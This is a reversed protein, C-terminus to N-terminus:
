PNNPRAPSHGLNELRYQLVVKPHTEAHDCADSIDHSQPVLIDRPIVPEVSCLATDLVPAVGLEVILIGRGSEAVKAARGPQHFKKMVNVRTKKKSERILIPPL